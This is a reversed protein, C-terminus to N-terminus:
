KAQEANKRAVNLAAGMHAIDKKDIAAVVNEPHAFVNKQLFVELEKKMSKYLEEQEQINDFEEGIYLSLGLGHRAICKTIARQIAKNVDTSTIKDAPISRNRNDMIPLWETYERNRVSVSTKVWGFRNDTFYPLGDANEYVRYDSEPYLRVLEAWAWAWPLYSLGAKEKAKASVDVAFLTEFIANREESM